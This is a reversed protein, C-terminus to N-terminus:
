QSIHISKLGVLVVGSMIWLIFGYGQSLLVEGPVEILWGPWGIGEQGAATISRQFTDPPGSTYGQAPFSVSAGASM